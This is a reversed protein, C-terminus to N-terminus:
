KDPQLEKSLLDPLTFYIDATTKGFLAEIQEHQPKGILGMIALATQDNLARQVIGAITTAAQFQRTGPRGKTIRDLRAIEIREQALRNRLQREYGPGVQAKIEATEINIAVAALIADSEPLDAFLQPYQSRLRDIEEPKREKLQAFSERMFVTVAEKGLAEELKLASRM